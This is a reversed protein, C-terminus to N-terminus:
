GSKVVLKNKAMEAPVKDVFDATKRANRNERGLLTYGRGNANQCM